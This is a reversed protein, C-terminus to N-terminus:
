LSFESNVVQLLYVVCVFNKQINWSGYEDVDVFFAAFHCLQQAEIVQHRLHFFFGM